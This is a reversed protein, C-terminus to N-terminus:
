FQFAARHPTTEELVALNAGSEEFDIGIAVFWKENAAFFELKKACKGAQWRLDHIIFSAIMCEPELGPVGLRV